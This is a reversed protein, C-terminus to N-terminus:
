RLCNVRSTSPPLSHVRIEGRIWGPPRNNTETCRQEFQAKFVNIRNNQLDVEEISFRGEASGCGRSRGSIRLSPEAAVGGSVFTGPRLPQGGPARFSASWFEPGPVTIQLNVSNGDCFGAFTATGPVYKAFDGQGIFDSEDSHFKFYMPSELTWVQFNTSRTQAATSASIVVVRDNSFRRTDVRFTATTDGPAVVVTAPVSAAEDNSSLSVITASPPAPGSLLLTGMAQQGGDVAQPAISVGALDPIRPTPVTATPGVPTELVAERQNCAGATIAALSAAVIFLTRMAM